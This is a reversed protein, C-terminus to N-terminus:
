FYMGSILLFLIVLRYDFRFFIIYLSLIFNCSFLLGLLISSLTFNLTTFITIFYKIILFDFFIMIAMIIIKFINNVMQNNEIEDLFTNIKQIINQM